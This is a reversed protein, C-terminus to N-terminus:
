TTLCKQTDKMHIILKFNKGFGTGWQSYIKLGYIGCWFHIYAWFLLPFIKPHFLLHNVDNKEVKGGEQRMGGKETLSSTQLLRYLHSLDIAPKVEDPWLQILWGPAGCMMNESKAIAQQPSSFLPCPHACKGKTSVGRDSTYRHNHSSYFPSARVYWTIASLCLRPQECEHM